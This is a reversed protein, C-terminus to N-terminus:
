TWKHVGKHESKTSMISWSHNASFNLFLVESPNLSPVSNRGILGSTESDNWFISTKTDLLPTVAWPM